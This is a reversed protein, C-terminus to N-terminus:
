ANQADHVLLLGYNITLNALSTYLEKGRKYLLPAQTGIREEIGGSFVEIDQHTQRGDRLQSYHRAPCAGGHKDRRALKARNQGSFIHDQPYTSDPLAFALKGSRRDFSFSGKPWPYAGITTTHTAAAISESQQVAIQISEQSSYGAAEIAELADLICPIANDELNSKVDVGHPAKHDLSQKFGEISDAYDQRSTAREPQGYYTYADYLLQRSPFTAVVKQAAHKEEPTMVVLTAPASWFSILRNALFGPHHIRGTPFAQIDGLLRDHFDEMFVAQAIAAGKESMDKVDLRVQTPKAGLRAGAAALQGLGVGLFMSRHVHAEELTVKNVDRTLELIDDIASPNERWRGRGPFLTAHREYLEETEKLQADLVGGLTQGPRAVVELTAPHEETADEIADLLRSARRTIKATQIREVADQREIQVPLNEPM